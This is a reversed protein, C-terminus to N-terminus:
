HAPLVVNLHLASEDQRTEGSLFICSHSKLSLINYVTHARKMVREQNSGLSSYWDHARNIEVQNKFYRTQLSPKQVQNKFKIKLSSKTDIEFV